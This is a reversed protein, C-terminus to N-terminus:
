LVTLDEIIHRLLAKSDRKGLLTGFRYNLSKIMQFILFIESLRIMKSAYEVGMTIGIEKKEEIKCFFNGDGHIFKHVLTSKGVGSDGIIIIKFISDTEEM